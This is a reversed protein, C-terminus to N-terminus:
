ATRIAEVQQNVDGEVVYLLKRLGCRQLWLVSPMSGAPTSALPLQRSVWCSLAPRFAQLCCALRRRLTLRYRCACSRTRTASPSSPLGSTM